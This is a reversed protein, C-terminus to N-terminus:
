LWKIVINKRNFYLIVTESLCSKLLISLFVTSMFTSIAKDIRICMKPICKVVSFYNEIVYRKTKVKANKENIKNNIYTNQINIEIEIKKLKNQGNIYNKIRWWVSM